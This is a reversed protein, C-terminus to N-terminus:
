VAGRVLLIIIVFELVAIALLVTSMTRYRALRFVSGAERQSADLFEQEIASLDARRNSLVSLQEPRMLFATQRGNREWEHAMYQQPPLNKRRWVRNNELVAPILRDHALEYTITDGCSTSNVLFMDSLRGLLKRGEPGDVPGRRSHTRFGQKTILEYEFWDRIRCEPVSCQEAVEAVSDAYYRRMAQDVNVHKEVDALTIEDFDGGDRRGPEKRMKKWLQRCVVQLHLPEVYPTTKSDIRGGPSQVLTRALKTILADAVDETVRVGQEAAPGIIAARAESETLFDLRYRARLYGPVLGEYPELGGIYDERMALLVWLGSGQVADGLDRFFQEKVAWDTPDLNLVEEFQDIVVLRIRGLRSPPLARDLVEPLTLQDIDPADIDHGLLQLGISRVYRNRVTRPRGQPDLPVPSDVRVPGAVVFGDV